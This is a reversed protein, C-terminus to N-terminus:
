SPTRTVDFNCCFYIRRSPDRHMFFPDQVREVRQYFTGNITQNVISELYRTLTETHARVAAYNNSEDRCVLQLRPHSMTPLSQPGFMYEPAAGGYESLMSAAVPVDLPDKTPEPMLGLFLNKGPVITADQGNLFVSMDDLLYTTAM